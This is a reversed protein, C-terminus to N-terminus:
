RHISRTLTFVLLAVFMAGFFGEIMAVLQLNSSALQPTHDFILTVFSGASVAFADATGDVEQSGSRLYYLGFLVMTAIASVVVRLPREGYGATLRMTTNGIWRGLGRLRGEHYNIAHLLQRYHMERLFYESSINKAGVQDAGSKAKLYTTELSEVNAKTAPGSFTAEDGIEPNDEIVDSESQEDNQDEDEDTTAEDEDQHSERNAIERGAQWTKLTPVIPGFVLWVLKDHWKSQDAHRNAPPIEIETAHDHLAWAEDSLTARYRSFDFGVFDTNQFILHNFIEDDESQFYVNGVSAATFDIDYLPGSSNVIQGSDIRASAFDIDIAQADPTEIDELQIEKSFVSDRFSMGVNARSDRVALNAKFRSRDGLIRDVTRIETLKSEGKFVSDQFNFPGRELILDSATFTGEFVSDTLDVRQGILDELVVDGDFRSNVLGFKGEQSVTEIAVNDHFQVDAVSISDSCTISDWSFPAGFQSRRHDIGGQAKLDEVDVQRRVTSKRFEFSGRIEFDSVSFDGDITARHYELKGADANELVVDQVVTSRFGLSGDVSGKSYKVHKLTSEVFSIDGYVEVGGLEVRDDFHTKEFRLNNEFQGGILVTGFFDSGTFDIPYSFSSLVGWSDVDINTIGHFTGDTASIDGIVTSQEFTVPGQIEIDDLRLNGAVDVETCDLGARFTANTLDLNGEVTASGLNVKRHFVANSFDLDGEITAGELDLTSEFVTDSAVFAESVSVDAVEFPVLVTSDRIDISGIEACRLDLPFPCNPVVETKEFTMDVFKAGSFQPADDISSLPQRDQGNSLADLLADMTEETSKQSPDKHFICTGGPGDIVRQCQKEEEGLVVTYGCIDDDKSSM